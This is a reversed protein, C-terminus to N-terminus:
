RRESAMQAYRLEYMKTKNNQFLFISRVMGVALASQPTSGVLGWDHIPYGIGALRERGVVRAHPYLTHRLMAMRPGPACHASVVFIQQGEKLDDRISHRAPSGQNPIRRIDQEPGAICILQKM